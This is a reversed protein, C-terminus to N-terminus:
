SAAELQDSDAANSKEAIMQQSVPAKPTQGEKSGWDLPMEVWFGKISSALKAIAENVKHKGQTDMYAPQLPPTAAFSVGQKSAGNRDRYGYTYGKVRGETLTGYSDRATHVFVDNYAARNGSALAQIGQMTLSELPKDIDIGHPVGQNQVGTTKQDVLMGLHKRWLQKRLDGAFHRTICRTGGGVDTMAAGRTDIVVAAIETDGNGNLSRDNINASGIIAVADDVIMLKSHVYVMETVVNQGTSGYNRLNLVTLYKRWDNVMGHSALQLRVEENSNAAGIGWSRSNKAVLTANIRNILSNNARKVGQLAWWTQSRTGDEEMHGEPHEPLVLYVHFPRSAYIAKAIAGALERIIPNTSPCATGREDAGCDSMFFQNEIYIFAQAARICNMMADRISTQDSSRWAARATQVVKRRTPNRTKWDDNVFDYRNDWLKIEDGLQAASASRCIQVDVTGAGRQLPDVLHGPGKAKNFWDVDMRSDFANTGSGAFSNWRLVFNVFVDFASPGQIRLSVDEWPQRPQTREDLLRGNANGNTTYPPAFGPRGNVSATLATEADTPARSADLQGNYGDNIVHLNRDIVVDCAQTDWRGYALDIGGVFAVQGDVIVSKQHHSFFTNSDKVLHDSSSLDFDAIAARATNPNQLMVRISGKGAPLGSLTPQTTDDHTDLARALSDYLMVRVHVGRQLAAALLESLRGPHGAEGRNDLEVDYDLQWGTIMIFSQAARIADAVAKMYDRGCIYATCENNYRPFAFPQNLDFYQASITTKTNPVIQATYQDITEAM